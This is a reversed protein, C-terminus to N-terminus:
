VQGHEGAERLLHKWQRLKAVNQIQWRSVGYHKVLALTAEVRGHRRKPLLQYAARIEAIQAATLKSHGNDDGVKHPPPVHRSREMADHTNDLKTGVLLHKPNVCAPVDCSHRVIESPKLPRGNSWIWSLRHARENGADRGGLGITGYGGNATAATWM